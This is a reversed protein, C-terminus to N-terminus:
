NVKYILVTAAGLRMSGSTTKAKFMVSNPTNSPFYNLPYFDYVFGDLRKCATEGSTEEDITEGGVSLRWYCNVGYSGIAESFYVSYSAEEIIGPVTVSFNEEETSGELVYVTDVIISMRNADSYEFHYYDPSGSYNVDVESSIMEIAEELVNPKMSGPSYSSWQVIKSSPTNKPLYAVLWGDIDIYINVNIDSLHFDDDIMIKIPVEGIIHVGSSETTTGEREMFEQAKNLIGIDVSDLKVYASIGAEDEPFTSASTFIFPVFLLFIAILTNKKM